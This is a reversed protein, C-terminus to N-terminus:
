MLKSLIPNEASTAARRARRKLPQPSSPYKMEMKRVNARNLRRGKGVLTSPCSCNSSRRQRKTVNLLLLNVPPVMIIAGFAFTSSPRTSYTRQPGIPLIPKIRFRGPNYSPVCIWCGRASHLDTWRTSNLSSAGTSTMTSPSTNDRCHSSNLTSGPARFTTARRGHYLPFDHGFFSSLPLLHAFAVAALRLLHNEVNDNRGEKSSRIKRAAIVLVM